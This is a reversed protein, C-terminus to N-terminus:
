QKGGRGRGRGSGSGRGRGRMPKGRNGGRSNASQPRNNEETSNSNGEQHLISLLQAAMEDYVPVANSGPIPASPQWSPTYSSPGSPVFPIAHIHSIMGNGNIPMPPVWDAHFHSGQQGNQSYPDINLMSKLMNEVDSANQAVPQQLIRPKPPGQTWNNHAPPSAPQTPKKKVNLKKRPADVAFPPQINTLNLVCDKHILVGRSESCLGELTSGGMVPEDLLISLNPFEISIVTGKLGLPM